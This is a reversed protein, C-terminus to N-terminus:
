RGSLHRIFQNVSVPMKSKSGAGGDASGRARQDTLFIEPYDKRATELAAKLNVPAGKDDFELNGRVVQWLLKTNRVGAKAAAETVADRADRETIQQRLEGTEVALREEEAAKLKRELRELERRVIRNVETQTFLTKGKLNLGEPEDKINQPNEEAAQRTPQDGNTVPENANRGDDLKSDPIQFKSNKDEEAQKEAPQTEAGQRAATTLNPM